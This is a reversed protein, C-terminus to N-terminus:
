VSVTGEDPLRGNPTMGDVVKPLHLSLQELLSGQDMGSQTALDQVRDRGLTDRLQEPSISQNAGTGVWSQAVDGHGANRLMSILGGLGGVGGGTTGGGSAGGGLMNMLVNQLASGGMSGGSGGMAGGGSGGMLGGLVDSLLSM